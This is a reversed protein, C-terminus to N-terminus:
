EEDELHKWWDIAVDLHNENLWEILKFYKWKM